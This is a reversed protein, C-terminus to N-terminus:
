LKQLAIFKKKWQVRYPCCVKVARPAFKKFYAVKLKQVMTICMM